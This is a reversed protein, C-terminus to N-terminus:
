DPKGCAEELKLLDSRAQNLATISDNHREVSSLISDLSANKRRSDKTAQHMEELIQQSNNRSYNAPLNGAADQEKTM